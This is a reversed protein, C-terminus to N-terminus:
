VLEGPRARAWLQEWLLVRDRLRRAPTRGYVQAARLKLLSVLDETPRFPDAATGGSVLSLAARAEGGVLAILAPHRLEPVSDLQSLRHLAAGDDVADALRIIISHDSM